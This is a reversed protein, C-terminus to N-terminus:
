IYLWVRKWQQKSSHPYGTLVSFDMRLLIKKKSNEVFNLLSKHSHEFRSVDNELFNMERDVNFMEILSVFFTVSASWIFDHSTCATASSGTWAGMRGVISTCSLYTESLRKPWTFSRLCQPPNTCSRHHFLTLENPFCKLQVLRAWWNSPCHCCNIAPYLKIFFESEFNNSNPKLRGPFNAFWKM